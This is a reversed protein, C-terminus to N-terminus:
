EGSKRTLWRVPASVTYLMTRIGANHWINKWQSWQIRPDVLTKTVQVDGQVGFHVAVSRVVHSWVRDQMTSGFLRFGVEYIPDNARALTQVQATVLGEEDHASFTVWGSEPHGQPTMLSFSTEDAYLVMVGTRLPGAPTVADILVVEGPKIGSVSPYFRNTTPQFEPFREKWVRVVAEPTVVAGTLPIRFTKQWLPGFGQLPGVVQRGTVNIELGQRPVGSVALRSVPAAWAGADRPEDRKPESM